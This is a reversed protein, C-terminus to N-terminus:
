PILGEAELAKRTGDHHLVGHSELFRLTGAAAARRGERARGTEMGEATVHAAEAADFGMAALVAAEARADIELFATIYVGFLPGLDQRDADTMQPWPIGILQGLLPHHFAEERAHEKM